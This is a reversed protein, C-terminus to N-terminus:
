LWRPVTFYFKSGQGPASEVWLKGGHAEIIRRSIALGLGTGGFHRTMSSDVQYGPQFIREFETQPIGIGYDQICVQVHPGDPLTVALDIRKSNPSFKIANDILQDIASELRAADARVQCLGPAVRLGIEIGVRGARSRAKDVVQLILRDLPVEALQMEQTNLAHLAMMNNVMDGLQTSWNILSLM